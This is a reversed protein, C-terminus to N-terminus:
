EIERIWGKYAKTKFRLLRNLCSNNLGHEKAFKQANIISFVEGRLALLEQTLEEM